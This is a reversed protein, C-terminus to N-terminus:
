EATRCRVGEWFEGIADCELEFEAAALHARETPSLSRRLRDSTVRIPRKGYEIFIQILAADM